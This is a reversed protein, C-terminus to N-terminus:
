DLGPAHLADNRQSSLAQESPLPELDLLMVADLLLHGWRGTDADIVELYLEGDSHPALDVLLTRLTQDDAGRFTALERGSADRLALRVGSASGGGIKFILFSGAGGSFTPSRANAVAADGRKPDYTSLWGKGEAQAVSGENAGPRRVCRAGSVTWGLPQTATERETECDLL